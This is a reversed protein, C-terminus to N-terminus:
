RKTIRFQFWTPAVTNPGPAYAGVGFFDVAIFYTGAALATFTCLEPQGSAGQGGNDCNGTTGASTATTGAANLRYVGLDAEANPNDFADM